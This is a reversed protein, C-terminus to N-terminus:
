RGKLRQVDNKDKPRDTSKLEVLTERSALRVPVGNVIVDHAAALADDFRFNAAPTVIDAYYTHKVPIQKKPGALQQADFEIGVGLSKLADITRQANVVTPNIQLDLDDVERTRDYYRVALGGVVIYEVSYSNFAELLDRNSGFTHLTRGRM